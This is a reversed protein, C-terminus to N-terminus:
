ALICVKARIVGGYRESIQEARGITQQDTKDVPRIFAILAFEKKSLGLM